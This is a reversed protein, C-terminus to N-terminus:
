LGNLGAVGYAPWGLHGSGTGGDGGGWWGEAVGTM